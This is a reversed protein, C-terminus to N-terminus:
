NLMMKNYLLEGGLNVLAQIESCGTCHAIKKALAQVKPQETFSLLAEIQSLSLTSARKKPLAPGKGLGNRLWGLDVNAEKAVAILLAESIGGIGAELKAYHSLSIQLRHAFDRQSIRLVSRTLRLRPAIEQLSKKM